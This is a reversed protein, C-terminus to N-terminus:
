KMSKKMDARFAALIKDGNPTEKAWKDVVPELVKQWRAAQEATLTHFHHSPDAKAKDRIAHGLGEFFTAFDRVFGEGTNADLIKKGKDSLKAYSQKNMVIFGAPAGLPLGEVHYKVVDTLKFTGLLVWGAVAGTVVGQSLAQYVEPAPISIPSGGIATVIDAVTRDSARLKMGKVDELTKVETKTSLGQIPAGVLALPKVDKYEDAILGSSYLRWLAVSGAPLQGDPVLLPLGIITSKPFPLNVAGQIGWGIDVVGNVTRDWVNVANALTPGSIVQIQFEGKAQENVKKAWPEFFNAVLPNTPPITTAMKLVTEASASAPVLALLAAAMWAAMRSRANGPRLGPVAFARQTM